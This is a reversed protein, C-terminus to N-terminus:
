SGSRDKRRQNEERVAENAARIRRLERHFSRLADGRLGVVMEGDGMETYIRSGACGVSIALPKGQRLLPVLSCMPRLVMPPPSWPGGLRHATELVYMLARARVFLLAASVEGPGAGLPAYSVWEPAQPNHPISGAEGPLLYGEEEMSKLTTKLREGWAGEPKEGLVFAGIECEEHLSQAVQLSRSRGQAFYTCVSPAAQELRETGALPQDLYSIGVPPSDLELDRTLESAVRTLAVPESPESM